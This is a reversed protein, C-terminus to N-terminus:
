KYFFFLCFFNGRDREIVFTDTYRIQLFSKFQESLSDIFRLPSNTNPKQDKFLTLLFKELPRGGPFKDGDKMAKDAFRYMHYIPLFLLIETLGNQLLTRLETPNIEKYGWPDIFLLARESKPMKQLRHIVETIIETYPIEKYHINVNSPVYLKSVFSKIREIKSKAPEIESQGHDNFYVEINPCKKDNTFYHDKICQVAILPSGKEENEYVGEGAFLDYLHIKDIFDVRAIINLYISLYKKYLEIKAKSHDELGKENKAGMVCYEIILLLFFFGM